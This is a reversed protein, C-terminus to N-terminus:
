STGAFIAEISADASRDVVVLVQDGSKLCTEGDPVMAQGGRVVTAIVVGAPVEIDKLARGVLTSSPGISTEVMRVGATALEFLNVTQSSATAEELLSVLIAPASMAVDIGWQKDFLWTNRPDNVRAVVRKVDFQRKAMLSAVLNDEDVGTLALFADHEDAKARELVSVDTTDGEIVTASLDARVISAFPLETVTTSTDLSRASRTRASRLAVTM